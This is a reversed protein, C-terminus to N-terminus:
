HYDGYTKEVSRPLIVETLTIESPYQAFQLMAHLELYRRYFVRAASDSSLVQELRMSDDATLGGDSLGILFQRLEHSCDFLESMIEGLKYQIARSNGAAKLDCGCNWTVPELLPLTLLSESESRFDWWECDAGLAGGAM